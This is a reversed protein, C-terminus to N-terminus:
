WRVEVVHAGEGYRYDVQLRHVDAIKKVIALGLGLSGATANCKRFREFLQAPPVTPPEGSNRVELHQQTLSVGIWGGPQNHQLANRLLNTVLIDALLADIRM